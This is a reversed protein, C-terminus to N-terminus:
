QVLKRQDSQSALDIIALCAYEAKASVKMPFDRVNASQILRNSKVVNVIFRFAPRSSGEWM